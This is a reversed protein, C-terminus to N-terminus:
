AAAPQGPARLGGPCLCVRASYPLGRRTSRQTSCAARRAHGSSAACCSSPRLTRRLAAACCSCCCARAPAAARHCPRQPQTPGKRQARQERGCGGLGRRALRLPRGRVGAAGDVPVKRSPLATTAMSAHQAWCAFVAAPAAGAWSPGACSLGATPAGDDGALVCRRRRLLLLVRMPASRVPRAPRRASPVLSPAERESRGAERWGV